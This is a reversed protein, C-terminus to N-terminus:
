TKRYRNLRYIGPSLLDIDFTYRCSLEHNGNPTLVVDILLNRPAEMNTKEVPRHLERSYEFIRFENKLPKRGNVRWVGLVLHRPTRFPFTIDPLPEGVWCGSSARDLEMDGMARERYTIHAWVEDTENFGNPQPVNELSMIIPYYTGTNKKTKRFVNVDLEILGAFATQSLIKFDPRPASKTEIDQPPETARDEGKGEKLSDKVLHRVGRLLENERLRKRYIARQALNAKHQLTPVVFIIFVLLCVLFVIVWVYWPKQPVYQALFVDRWEKPLVGDRIALLGSLIAIVLTVIARGSQILARGWFLITRSIINAM